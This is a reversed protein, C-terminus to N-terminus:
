MMPTRMTWKETIKQYYLAELSSGSPELGVFEDMDWLDTEEFSENAWAEAAGMNVKTVDYWTGDASKGNKIFWTWMRIGTNIITNTWDTNFGDVVAQVPTHVGDSSLLTLFYPICNGM